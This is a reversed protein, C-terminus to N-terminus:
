RLREIAMSWNVVAEKFEIEQVWVSSGHEKLVFSGGEAKVDGRPRYGEPLYLLAKGALGPACATSGPSPERRMTGHWGRSRTTAASCHMNTAIVQPRTPLRHILLIRATRPALTLAHGDKHTGLFKEEWFEFVVVEAGAPLGLPRLRRVARAAPGRLQVPRRRGM